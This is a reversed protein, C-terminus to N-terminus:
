FWFEIPIHLLFHPFLKCMIEMGFIKFDHSEICILSARKRIYNIIPCIFNLLFMLIAPSKFENYLDTESPYLGLRMKLKSFDDSPWAYIIYDFFKQFYNYALNM